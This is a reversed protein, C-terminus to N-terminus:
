VIVGLLAPQTPESPPLIDEQDQDIRFLSFVLNHRPPQHVAIETIRLKQKCPREASLLHLVRNHTQLTQVAQTIKCCIHTEKM